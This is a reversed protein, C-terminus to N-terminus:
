RGKPDVRDAHLSIVWLHNAKFAFKFYVMCGLRKSMWRFAFLESQFIKDEYSRQPPYTGAYSGPKVEDLLEVLVPNIGGVQIGLEIADLAIVLPKLLSFYKKLIAERAQRIKGQIESYFPRKM